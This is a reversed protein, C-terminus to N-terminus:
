GNPGNYGTPLSKVLWCQMDDGKTFEWRRQRYCMSVKIHVWEWCVWEDVRWTGGLAGRIQQASPVCVRHGYETQSARQRGADTNKVNGSWAVTFRTALANGRTPTPMLYPMGWVRRALMIDGRWSKRAELMVCFHCRRSIEFKSYRMNRLVM